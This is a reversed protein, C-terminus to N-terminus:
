EYALSDLEDSVEVRELELQIKKIKLEAIRKEKELKLNDREIEAAPRVNLIKFYKIVEMVNKAKSAVNTAHESERKTVAGMLYVTQNNTTLLIHNPHFVEQNLFLAEIQATILADKTRSLYSINKSVKIENGVQVITPINLKIKKNLLDIIEGSDTEGFMVVSKDYVLFNIHSDEFASDSKIINNLRQYINKDDVLEGPSRRDNSTTTVDQAIVAIGSSIPSCSSLLCLAILLTSLLSISKM